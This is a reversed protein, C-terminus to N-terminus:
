KFHERDIQSQNIAKGKSFQLHMTNKTSKFKSIRVILMERKNEPFPYQQLDKQHQFSTKAVPIIAQQRPNYSDDHQSSM